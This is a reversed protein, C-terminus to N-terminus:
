VRVAWRGCSLQFWVECRYMLQSWYSEARTARPIKLINGSFYKKGCPEKEAPKDRVIRPALTTDIFGCVFRIPIIMDKDTPYIM